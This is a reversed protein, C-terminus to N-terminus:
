DTCQMEETANRSTYHREAGEKTKGMNEMRKRHIDNVIMTQWHDGLTKMAKWQKEILTM